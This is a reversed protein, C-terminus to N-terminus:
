RRRPKTKRGTSDIVIVRVAAGKSTSDPSLIVNLTEAKKVTEAPKVVITGILLLVLAVTGVIYFILLKHAAHLEKQKGLFSFQIHSSGTIEQTLGFVDLNTARALLQEVKTGQKVAGKLLQHYWLGDMLWFAFWALIGVIALLTALTSQKQQIAVATAGVVVGLFSLAFARIRMALDNFHKQVDVTTKWAEVMLKAKEDDSM